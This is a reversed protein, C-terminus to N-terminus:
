VGLKEQKINFFDLTSMLDENLDHNLEIYKRVFAVFNPCFYNNTIPAHYNMLAGEVPENIQSYIRQQDNKELELFSLFSRTYGMLNNIYLLFLRWVTEYFIQNIFDNVTIFTYEEGGGACGNRDLTFIEYYFFYYNDAVITIISCDKYPDYAVNVQQGLLFNTSYFGYSDVDDPFDDGLMQMLYSEVHRKISLDDQLKYVTPKFLTGTLKNNSMFSVIKNTDNKLKNEVEQPNFKKLFDRSSKYKLKSYDLKGLNRKVKGGVDQGHIYRGNKFREEPIQYPLKFYEQNFGIPRFDENLIAKLSFKSLTNKMNKEKIM